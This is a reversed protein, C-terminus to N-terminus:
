GWVCGKGFSSCSDLGSTPEDCLLVGPRSILSLGLSLRRKQGGSLGKIFVDGVRTDACTDLGLDALMSAVIDRREKLGIANVNLTLAATYLLTERTTFSGLLTDEQAVYSPLFDTCNARIKVM